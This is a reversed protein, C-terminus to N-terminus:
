MGISKRAFRLVRTSKSETQKLEDANEQIKEIASAVDDMDSKEALLVWHPIIVAQESSAREAVPCSIKLGTEGNRPEHVNPGEHSDAAYLPSRYVPEYIKDCPIGEFNLAGIFRELPVNKFNEKNYKFVYYYFSQRTIRDDPRLPEIGQIKQLKNSLYDANEKRKEIQGPLRELQCLLIASQFETIRNNWGIVNKAFKDNERVRGCNVLSTCSEELAQENTTILGGEGATMLKSQQFSFCGLTGISGVGKGRWKAGHAHACDEVIALDKERAIQTIRDMDAVNSYLHVPVIARTKVTLADQIKNPDICYSNECVDVFIPKAGTFLAASATAVFTLAPVIVEDGAKVGAAKLSVALASSGSNTCIGFRSNQFQAFKEAFETQKEHKESRYSWNGSRLVELLETEDKKEVIPWAPFPKNRTKSGAKIALKAM